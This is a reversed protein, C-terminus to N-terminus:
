NGIIAANSPAVKNLCNYWPNTGNKMWLDFAALLNYDVEYLKVPDYQPHATINVQFIGRSDEKKTLNRAKANLNSECRAIALMTDEISSPFISRIKEEITEQRVSTGRISSNITSTANAINISLLM